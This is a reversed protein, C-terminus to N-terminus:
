IGASPACHPSHPDSPVGPSPFILLVANVLFPVLSVAAWLMIATVLGSGSDPGHPRGAEALMAFPFLVALFAVYAINLHGLQAAWRLIIAVM